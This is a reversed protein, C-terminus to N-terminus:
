YSINVDEPKNNNNNNNNHDIRQLARIQEYLKKIMAMVSITAYIILTIRIQNLIIGFFLLNFPQTKRFVESMYSYWNKNALSSKLYVQKLDAWKEVPYWAPNVNFLKDYLLAICCVIGAYFSILDNQRLYMSLGLAFLFLPMGTYLGLRDLYEGLFTKLNKIRAVNGDTYDLLNVFINLILIGVVRYGYSGLMLGSAILQLFIWAVTIQNPTISTTLLPRAVYLGLYHWMYNVKSWCPKPSKRALEEITPM